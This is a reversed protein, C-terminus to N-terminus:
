AVCEDTPGIGNKLCAISDIISHGILDQSRVSSGSFYPPVTEPGGSSDNIMGLSATGGKLPVAQFDDGFKVWRRDIKSKLSEPGKKERQRFLRKGWGM